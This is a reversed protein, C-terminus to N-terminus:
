CADKNKKKNQFYVYYHPSFMIFRWVYVMYVTTELRNLLLSSFTNSLRCYTQNKPSNHDRSNFHCPEQAM